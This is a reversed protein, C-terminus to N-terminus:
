LGYLYEQFPPYTGARLVPYYGAATSASTCPNVTDECAIMKIMHRKNEM